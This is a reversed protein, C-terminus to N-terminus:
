PKKGVSYQGFKNSRLDMKKNATALNRKETILNISSKKTLYYLATIGFAVFVTKMFMQSNPIIVLTAVIFVLISLKNNSSFKRRKTKAKANTLSGLQEIIGQALPSNNNSYINVSKDIEVNIFPETIFFYIKKIVGNFEKLEELSEFEYHETKIRVKEGTSKLLEYIKQLDEFYYDGASAVLKYSWITKM